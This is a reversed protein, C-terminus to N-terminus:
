APSVVWKPAPAGAPGAVGWLLTNAPTPLAGAVHGLNGGGTNCAFHKGTLTIGSEDITLASGGATFAIKGSKIVAMATGNAGGIMITLAGRDGSLQVMMLEDNDAHNTTIISVSDDARKLIIRADGSSVIARDGPALDGYKTVIRNDKTGVIWRMNGQTAMLGMCAGDDDVSNPMSYFGDLMWMSADAGFGTSTQADGVQVRVEGEEVASSLIDVPILEQM